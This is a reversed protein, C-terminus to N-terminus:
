DYPSVWTQPSDPSGFKISNTVSFFLWFPLLVLMLMLKTIIWVLALLCVILALIGVLPKVILTTLSTIEWERWERGAWFYDLPKETGNDFGYTIAKKLSSHWSKANQALTTGDFYMASEELNPDKV